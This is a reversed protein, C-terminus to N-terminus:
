RLFIFEKLNFLSQAFDGWVQLEHAPGHAKSLEALYAHSATQETSQPSRGLVRTFMQQLRATAGSEAQLIHAALQRAQEIVFPDNLLALSQGPVNTTDRRGLTGFPKPADFAELFPSLFNRRVTLYVSRRRQADAPALADAGPGFQTPDLRGSVALLSDRISEAELRRVRAHSLLVNSPDKERAVPSTDSAAQWTQSTVLFRILEKASWGHAVFHTALYDLLEPHSPLEGLRGFNDVTPVIGRGFLHHWIRNM